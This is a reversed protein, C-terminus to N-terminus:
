PQGHKYYLLHTKRVLIIKHVNRYKSFRSRLLKPLEGAFLKFMIIGTKNIVLDPFKLLSREKFLNNTSAYTGTRRNKEVFAASSFHWFKVTFFTHLTSCKLVNRM